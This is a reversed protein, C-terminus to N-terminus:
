EYRLAAMPAIRAARRAPGYSAALVVVALVVAAAVFALPDYGSVGFLMAEVIRGLGIAAAVGLATGILTMVGVHKLVMAELRAPVAGLTLRLGLERTRQAVSYTLMGYLGMAALLTALISFGASLATVLRDVYVDDGFQAELTQLAAVPLNPDVDAVARPIARLLSEPAIASRVYFYRSPVFAPDVQAIPQYFQPPVQAKVGTGSQAADAVVGVIEVDANAGRPRFRRGIADGGLNFRAVFSENVIAVLPADATDTDAFDRGALLPVGLTAFLGPSVINTAVRTDVSPPM